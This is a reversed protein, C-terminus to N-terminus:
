ERKKQDERNSRDMQIARCEASTVLIFRFIAATFSEGAGIGIRAITDQVPLASRITTGASDDHWVPDRREETTQREGM